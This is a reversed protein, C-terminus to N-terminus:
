NLMLVVKGEGKIIFPLLIGTSLSSWAMFTHSTSSTYSWPNKGEASPPPSHDTERGQRKGWTSLIGPVGQDPSQVPELASISAASFDKRRGLMRKVSNFVTKIVCGDRKNVQARVPPPFRPM